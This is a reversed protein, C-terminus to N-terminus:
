PYSDVPEGSNPNHRALPYLSAVIPAAARTGGVIYWGGNNLGWVGTNPDAVASVDAVTRMACLTDKQRSPKAEFASCGSGAGSWATESGNRSGASTVQTLSTGGVATVFPSVAPYETGYAADGSSATIAV